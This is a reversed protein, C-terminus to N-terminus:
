PEINKENEELLFELEVENSALYNIAEQEWETLSEETDTEAPLTEMLVLDDRTIGAEELMAMDLSAEDGSTNIGIIQLFTFSILAFGLIAAALAVYSRVRMWTSKTEETEAERKQTEERIREAMRDPFSAFYGDPVTFPQKKAQGPLADLSKKNRSM